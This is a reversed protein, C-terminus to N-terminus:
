EIEASQDPMPAVPLAPCELLRCLADYVNNFQEFKESRSDQFADKKVQLKNLLFKQFLSLSLTKSGFKSIWIFYKVNLILENLISTSKEKLIGFLLQKKDVPLELNLTGLWVRIDNWLNFVKECSFYLHSILEPFNECFDCLPSVYQKFKNVRYNTFLSHRNIQYQIWKMKNEFKIEATLRYTNNWFDQSLTCELEENWLLQIRALNTRTDSKQKLLKSYKNCGKPSLTAVEILLPRFPLQPAVIEEPLGLKRFASRLIYKIETIDEDSANIGYTELM